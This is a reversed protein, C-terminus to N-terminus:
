HQPLSPPLPDRRSAQHAIMLRAHLDHVVAEQGEPRRRVPKHRHQQTSLVRGHRLFAYGRAPLEVDYHQDSRFPALTKGTMLDIPKKGHIAPPLGTIDVSVTAPKDALNYVAVGADGSFLADYNLVAWASKKNTELRQRLALPKFVSGKLARM